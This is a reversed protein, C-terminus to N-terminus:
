LKILTGTYDTTSFAVVEQIYHIIIKDDMFLGEGSTAIAQSPDFSSFFTPQITFKNGDLTAKTLWSGFLIKIEQPYDGASIDIIMDHTQNTTQGNITMKQITSGRYKGFYTSIDDRPSRSCSLFTFTLILIIISKLSLLKM